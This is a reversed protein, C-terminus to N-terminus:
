RKRGLNVVTKESENGFRDIASVVVKGVQTCQGDSGPQIVSRVAPKVAFRWGGACESWIAFWAVPKGAGPQLTIDAPGGAKSRVNVLPQAPMSKDLWPMAPILAPMAYQNAALTSVIGERNQSLAAMSFHVHGGVGRARTLEIQATIEEPAFARATKDGIRSTYLGPWLARGTFNQTIWYDLLVPFAQGAQAVPWYLQPSFYDVWGNNFWLEADAYLKDYQSFGVIGAPRRDPKPLGFPSIGVKVWPKEKHVGQYIRAVLANVNDRRWDNRVLKGGASVYRNWSVEDPFDIEPRNAATSLGNDGPGADATIPYPYFYDDIHVGDVDYRKVVDLMVALTQEAASPEGPDMWLFKGYAKVAAPNRVAIHDRANPTKATSHRARYPNFWAHLEMGRAHAGEIWAQLPDYFPEPARGQRGTLYESWPELTSPYIADASPRVQLIIANLHMARARDLTTDIEAKQQAVSLDARSPWDINAVTSVWAARFERPAPPPMGVAPDPPLPLPLAAPVVTTPAIPKEAVPPTLAPTTCGFLITAGILVAAFGSHSRRLAPMPNEHNM